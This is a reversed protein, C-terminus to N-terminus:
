AAETRPWLGADNRHAGDHGAALACQQGAMLWDTAVAGCLDPAVLLVPAASREKAQREEALRKTAAEWGESVAQELFRMYYRGGAAPPPYLVDENECFFAALLAGAGMTVARWGSPTLWEIRLDAPAKRGVVVRFPLGAETVAFGAAFRRM